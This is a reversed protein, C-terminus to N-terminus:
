VDSMNYQVDGSSYLSTDERIAAKYAEGYRSEWLGPTHATNLEAEAMGANEVAQHFTPSGLTYVAADDTLIDPRRRYRYRLTRTTDTTPHVTVDFRQGTTVFSRPHITWYVPTGTNNDDRQHKDMSDLDIEQLNGLISTSSYEWVFDDVMGGFNDPLQYTGDTTITFTDGTDASADATVTVNKADTYGDITYSTGSTDAVIAKGVMSAYFTDAAVTLTLDGAGGVTVAATTTTAWWTMATKIRLFSWVHAEGDPDRPDTGTLVRRYGRNLHALADAATTIGTLGEIRDCMAGTSIALDAM